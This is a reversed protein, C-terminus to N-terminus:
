KFLLIWKERRKVVGRRQPHRGGREGEAFCFIKINRVSRGNLNLVVIIFSYSKLQEGVSRSFIAFLGGRRSGYFDRSRRPLQNKRPM